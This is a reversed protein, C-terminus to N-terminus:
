SRNVQGDAACLEKPVCFHGGLCTQAMGSGRISKISHQILSDKESASMFERFMLHMLIGVRPRHAQRAGETYKALLERIIEMSRAYVAMKEAIRSRVVSICAHDDCRIGKLDVQSREGISAFGTVLVVTPVAQGCLGGHFLRHINRDIKTRLMCCVLLHVGGDDCLTQSLKNANEIATHYGTVDLRHDQPGIVYFIRMNKSDLTIDYATFTMADCRFEARADVVERGSILNVVGGAGAGPEGCVIVNITKSGEPHRMLLHRCPPVVTREGLGSADSLSDAATHYSGNQSDDRPGRAVLVDPVVGSDQPILTHSQPVSSPATPQRMSTNPEHPEVVTSTFAPSSDTNQLLPIPTRARSPPDRLGFLTGEDVHVKQLKFTAMSDDQLPHVSIPVHIRVYHDCNTDYKLYVVLPHQPNQPPDLSCRLLAEYVSPKETQRIPLTARITGSKRSCTDFKFFNSASGFRDYFKEPPIEYANLYQSPCAALLGTTASVTTAGHPTLQWAFLSKDRSSLVIEHQLKRFAKHKIGYIAPLGQTDFLGLLSYARDEEETTIRRAAWHMRQAISVESDRCTMGSLLIGPRIGTCHAIRDMLENRTGLCTWDKAFFRLDRPAILEQLTWGRLFWESETLESVDSVDHLYAYCVDSEGYWRYMSNIATTLEKENRNDICCTDLWVYALGDRLAQSCAGLVKEYSKAKSHARSLDHIDTFLVEDSATGWRHSVIAYPPPNDRLPLELTITKANLLRMIIEAGQSLDSFRPVVPVTVM